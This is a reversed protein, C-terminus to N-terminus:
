RNSVVSIAHVLDDPLPAEFTIEEGSTPHCLTLRRAHLAQRELIVEDGNADNVDLDRRYLKSRGSYLPDCLIPSGAHAMHIRIQHTRGTKPLIKLLAVGNIRETVEYFTEAERSTSHGARIAMKERQYPHVGIPKNVVDRDRDPPPTVMAFYEKTTQRNEFQQALKSHAEDTKAVVIVGSTDRDLRHVIGPRHEGGISSLNKFRHVLAAVLTGSWHGKAPHVVMAPPKNVAIMADDEFLVDLDIEEGQIRDVPAEPLKIQIQQGESVKASPKGPKGDLFVDGEAIARRLKSRSYTPFCTVLYADLRMGEGEETVTLQKELNEM